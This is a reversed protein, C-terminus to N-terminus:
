GTINCSTEEKKCKEQFLPKRRAFFSRKSSRSSPLYCHSILLLSVSFASHSPRPPSSGRIIEITLTASKGTIIGIREDNQEVALKKQLRKNFRFFLSFFILVLSLSTFMGKMFINLFDFIHNLALTACGIMGLTFFLDFYWKCFKKM